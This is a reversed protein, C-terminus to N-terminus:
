GKRLVITDADQSSIKWTTPTPTPTPTPPPPIVPVPPPVVGGAVECIGVAIARAFEDLSKKIETAEKLNDHFAIEILTAPAKPVRLEIFTTNSKIGRDAENSAKAVREYVHQCLNKGKVSGTYFFGETGHGGGANSHVAIYWAADWTNAANANLTPSISGGMKVSHGAKVLLGCVRTCLDRMVQEENGGGSYANAEQTSPSIYIKSM